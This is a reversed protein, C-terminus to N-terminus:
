TSMIESTVSLLREQFLPLLLVVTSFIECDIELFTNPHAPILSIVGSEAIKSESCPGADCLQLLFKFRM